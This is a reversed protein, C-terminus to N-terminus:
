RQNVSVPPSDSHKMAFVLVSTANISIALKLKLKQIISIIANKFNTSAFNYLIPDLVCRFLMFNNSILYYVWFAFSPNFTSYPSIWLAIIMFFNNIFFLSTSVATLVTIIILVIIRKNRQKVRKKQRRQYESNDMPLKANLIKQAILIYSIVTIFLPLIIVILTSIFTVSLLKMDRALTACLYFNNYASRHNLVTIGSAVTSLLWCLFIMISVTRSNFPKTFPRVIARYRDASIAALLLNSNILALFLISSSAKCVINSMLSSLQSRIEPFVNFLVQISYSIIITLSVILDSLVVQTILRDLTQNLHHNTYLVYCVFANFIARIIGLTLVLINDVMLSSKIKDFDAVTANSLNM